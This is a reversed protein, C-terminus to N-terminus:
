GKQGLILALNPDIGPEPSEEEEVEEEEEGGEGRFSALVRDYGSAGYRVCSEFGALWGLMYLKRQAESLEVEGNSGESM